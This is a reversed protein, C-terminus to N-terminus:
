ATRGNAGAPRSDDQTGAARGESSSPDPGPQPNPVSPSPGGAVSTHPELARASLWAMKLTLPWAEDYPGDLENVDPNVRVYDNITSPHEEVDRGRLSM